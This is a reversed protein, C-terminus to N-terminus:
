KVLFEDYGRFIGGFVKNQVTYFDTDNVWVFMRNQSRIEGPTRANGAKIEFYDYSWYSHKKLKGDKRQLTVICDPQRALVSDRLPYKSLLSEAGLSAFQSLYYDVFKLNVKDQSTSRPSAPEFRINKAPDTIIFSSPRDKPYEVKLYEIDGPQEVFLTRDRYNDLPQEFRSRVGGALGPLHMAYPQSTGGLLMYTGDNKPTDSGVFIIKAPKDDDTYVDMQIGNAKISKLIPETAANSPIYLMRLGTIVREINVFVAPDVDYRSNLIWGKGKRTFILPQLKIHRIVVKQVEEINDVTFGRSATLSPDGAKKDKNVLYYAILGLGLLLATLYVIKKVQM